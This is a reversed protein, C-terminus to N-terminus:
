QQVVSLEIGRTILSRPLEWAVVYRWSVPPHPPPLLALEHVVFGVLKGELVDALFLYHDVFFFIHDPNTPSISALVPIAEPLKSSKYEPSSWIQQLSTVSRNKWWSLGDVGSSVLTWTVILTEGASDSVARTLEVFRLRDRSMRICRDAEVIRDSKFQYDESITEPLEDLHLVPHEEFPNCSMLGRKLDIWWLKGGQSVVDDSNWGWHLCTRGPMEPRALKKEAWAAAGSRFFSLNAYHIGPDVRLDAVIYDAGDTGPNSVLGLSKLCSVRPAPRDPIRVVSRATSQADRQGAAVHPVFGRLLVLSSATQPCLALDFGTLPGRALNLLLGADTDAALVYPQADPAAPDPHLEAPFTFRAVRPPAPLSSTADRPVEADADEALVLAVRDLLVWRPPVPSSSPAPSAM